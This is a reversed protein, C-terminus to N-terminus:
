VVAAEEEKFAKLKTVLSKITRMVRGDRDLKDAVARISLLSRLESIPSDPPYVPLEKVKEDRVQRAANRLKIEAAADTKDAEMIEKVRALDRISVHVAFQFPVSFVLCKRAAALYYHFTDARMGGETVLVACCEKKVNKWLAVFDASNWNPGGLEILVEKIIAVFKTKDSEISRAVALLRSRLKASLM